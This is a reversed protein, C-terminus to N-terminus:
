EDLEELLDNRRAQSAWLVADTELADLLRDRNAQDLKNVIGKVKVLRPDEPEDARPGAWYGYLKAMENPSLAYIEGLVCLDHMSPRETKGDEIKSIQQPIIRGGTREQLQRQTLHYVEERMSRLKAGARRVRELESQERRVM